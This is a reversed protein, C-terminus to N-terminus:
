PESALVVVRPFQGITRGNGVGVAEGYHIAVVDAAGQLAQGRAGLIGGTDTSHTEVVADVAVPAVGYLEVNGFVIGGDADRGYGSVCEEGEGRIRGM